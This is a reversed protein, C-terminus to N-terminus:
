AGSDDRVIRLTARPQVADVLAAARPNSHAAYLATTSIDAHGMVEQLERIEGTAQYGVTGFRHRLQHMTEDLGCDRLHLNGYRTVSGPPTHGILGDLRPFIWGRRPLGFLKLETWVYQSMPVAREKDGKGHVIMYPRSVREFICDRRLTAIECCRLGAYGALVLWARVRGFAHLIAMQLDDDGIPRPLRRGLRPIPMTLAPNSPIRGAAALWAYFVRVGAVYSVVSIDAVTLAARWAELDSPTADLLSRPTLQQAIDLLRGRYLRRTHPSRGQLSLHKDFEDIVPEHIM